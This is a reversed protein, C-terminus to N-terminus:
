FQSVILCKLRLIGQNIVILWMTSAFDLLSNLTLLYHVKIVGHGQAWSCAPVSFSHIFLHIFTRGYSHFNWGMQRRNNKKIKQMNKVIELEAAALLIKCFLLM